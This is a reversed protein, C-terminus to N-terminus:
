FRFVMVEADALLVKVLQEHEPPSGFVQWTCTMQQGSKVQRRGRVRLGCQKFSTELREFTEPATSCVIEYTREESLNDIWAEVKPFV